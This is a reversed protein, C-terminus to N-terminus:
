QPIAVTIEKKTGKRIIEVKADRGPEAAQVAKKLDDIGRIPRGDFSLLIDYQKLGSAEALSSERVQNVVLGQSGEIDLHAALSM